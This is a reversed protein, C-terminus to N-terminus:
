LVTSSSSNCLVCSSSMMHQIISGEEVKFRKSQKNWLHVAFSQSYIQRLKGLLWRSHSADRPGYFLSSIRSWDVPYFAMPPLVTINYELRGGLRSVVRSVLYPGNHGWKNGNFTLAFEEIFKYLLPHGKDFIMVANNLRSWQGTGPDMTQAGIANRLERFSKLVIIDTDLYIGGFRYLLGLRLLNSLNQGLPVGGTRVNGRILRNHWSQAATNNFLFNFDPSIATVKFGRDSFPKLMLMGNRSDMSSSVIILCGSPHAKFLSQIALLERDGFAEISSIWTMFFQFECYSDTNFFRMVRDDFQMAKVDSSPVKLVRRHRKRRRPHYLAANKRKLIVFNSDKHMFPSHARLKGDSSKEKVSNLVSSTLKTSSPLSFFKRSNGTTNGRSFSEQEKPHVFRELVPVLIALNRKPLCKAISDRTGNSEKSLFALLLAAYAEVIMKEAEKEGQLISDEDELSLCKGEGAAEGDGQNALFISCLLSIVDRRDEGDGELHRLSVRAAALRARNCSDKEVLNVLLGLIAVLFDLEQDSLSPNSQLDIKPSSRPSLSSDRLGDSLSSSLTFSSFHDAILSSLIELGGSNGIQRCGEPNDNTLNMLVKVATLLCDALLISQEEDAKSSCSAWQNHHNETNSSEQQSLVLLTRSGNKLSRMTARSERSHPKILRGSLLDWKSPEFDGEDFAFPDESDDMAGVTTDMLLTKGNGFEMEADCCRMSPVTKSNGFSGSCSGAKSSEVRMMLLLPDSSVQTPELCSKFPEPQGAILFQNPQSGTFSNQSVTWEMSCGSQSSGNSTDSLKKDYSDGPFGRSLSIGSLIKIFSLILKTFTNPAQQDDYKGKMGLLHCQNDKSLFTANEMIKLCKLLLVLSEIDKSDPARSQKLWEEMFFHSKRAEAFVADLGGYERLKEKFKGGTKRVAGTSDEISIASLCAKEMILFSIWKPNLEPKETGNDFDDRPKIEKCSILMEHVKHSIAAVSSDSGKASNQLLGTNKCMGLLKSGISSKNENGVNSSLPKLLKLLFRICNPSDLLNDDQGDSTLIYFLAAAALNSPPDDFSLGLVVDIITKAMGHIRLLRRQQATGCFSLLSLLSARRVTVQQGKKLGDLAFNVEDMHEMMEGFEQTEMLTSTLGVDCSVLEKIKMKNKNKKKQSIVNENKRKKNPKRSVDDFKWPDGDGKCKRPLSIGLESLEQSSNLGYSDYNVNKFKGSECFESDSFEFVKNDGKSQPIELSSDVDYPDSNVKKVKKPKRFVKDSFELIGDEGGYGSSPIVFERSEQSSSSGYTELDVDFVNVKKPKWLGGALEESDVDKVSPLITLRTMEQSPNFGYPDSWNCRASDQSSLTFNYVDQSFEQSPSDSVVDSLSSAGSYSRTLDRSRRGYKRVIM